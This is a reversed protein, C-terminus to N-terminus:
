KAFSDGSSSDVKSFAEMGNNWADMEFERSYFMCSELIVVLVLWTALNEGIEIDISGIQPARRGFVLVHLLRDICIYTVVHIEDHLAITYVRWFQCVLIWINLWNTIHGTEQDMKVSCVCHTWLLHSYMICVDWFWWAFLLSENFEMWGNWSFETWIETLLVTYYELMVTCWCWDLQWTDSLTLAIAICLEGVLLCEHLPDIYIYTVVHIEDQLIDVCWLLLSQLCNSFLWYQHM